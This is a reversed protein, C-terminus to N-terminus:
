RPIERRYDCDIYHQLRKSLRSSICWADDKPGLGSQKSEISADLPQRGIPKRSSSPQKSTYQYTGVASKVLGHRATLARDSTPRYVVSDRTPRVLFRKSSQLRHSTRAPIVGREQDSFVDTGAQKKVKAVGNRLLRAADRPIRPRLAVTAGQSHHLGISTNVGTVPAPNDKFLTQRQTLLLDEHLETRLCQLFAHMGVGGFDDMNDIGSRDDLASAVQKSSQRQSRNGSQQETARDRKRCVLAKHGIVGCANCKRDRYYCNNPSHNCLGCRFCSYQPSQDAGSQRRYQGQERPREQQRVGPKVSGSLKSAVAHSADSTGSTSAHNSSKFSMRKIENETTEMLIAQTVAANLSSDDSQCLKAQIRKDAIGAIFQDRLNEELQRGFTCPIAAHRLIGLFSNLSQGEQQTTSRFITRAALVNIKPGYHRDLIEKLQGIKLKSPKEPLCLDVLTSYAKQGLLALFVPVERDEKIENAALYNELREYYITWDHTAPDFPELIGLLNAM